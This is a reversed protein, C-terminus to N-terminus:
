EFLSDPIIVNINLTWCLFLMSSDPTLYCTYGSAGNGKVVNGSCTFCTSDGYLTCGKYSSGAKCQAFCTEKTMGYQNSGRGAEKGNVDVCWGVEEKGADILTNFKPVTEWQLILKITSIRWM